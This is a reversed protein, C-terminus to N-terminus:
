TILHIPPSRHSFDGRPQPLGCSSAAYIPQFWSHRPRYRLVPAAAQTRDHGRLRLVAYTLM